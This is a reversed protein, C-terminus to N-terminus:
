DSIIKYLSYNYKVLLSRIDQTYQVCKDNNRVSFPFQPYYLKCKCTSSMRTLSNFSDM